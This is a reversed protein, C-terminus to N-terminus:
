VRVQAIFFSSGECMVSLRFTPQTQRPRYVKIESKVAGIFSPGLCLFLSLLPFPQDGSWNESDYVLTDRLVMMKFIVIKM